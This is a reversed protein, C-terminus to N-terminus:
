RCRVTYYDFLNEWYKGINYVHHNVLDQACSLCVRRLTEREIILAKATFRGERLVIVENVDIHCRDCKMNVVM